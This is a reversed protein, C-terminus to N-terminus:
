TPGLFVKAILTGVAYSIKAPQGDEELVSDTHISSVAYTDNRATATCTIGKLRKKRYDQFFM